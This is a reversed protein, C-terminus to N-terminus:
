LSLKTRSVIAEESASSLAYYRILLSEIKRKAWIKPLFQYSTISSDSLPIDYNYSVSKGFATGSLTIQVTQALSDGERSM